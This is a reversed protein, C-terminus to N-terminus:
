FLIIGPLIYKQWYSASNVMIFGLSVGQIISLITFYTSSFLETKWKSLVDNGTKKRKM